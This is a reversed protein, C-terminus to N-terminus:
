SPITQAGARVAAVEYTGDLGKLETVRPADFEFGGGRALERVVRTVLIEGGNALAAVRAAVTVTHGYFDDLDRVADGSHLGAHIRISEGEWGEAPATGCRSRPLSEM